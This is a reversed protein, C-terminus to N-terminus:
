PASKKQKPMKKWEYNADWTYTRISSAGPPHAAILACTIQAAHEAPIKAALADYTDLASQAGTIIQLQRPKTEPKKM